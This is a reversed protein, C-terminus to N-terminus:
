DFFFCFFVPGVEEELSFSFFVFVEDLVEECVFVVFEEGFGWDPFFVFVEYVEDGSSFVFFSDVLWIAFFDLYVFYDAWVPVPHQMDACFVAPDVKELM